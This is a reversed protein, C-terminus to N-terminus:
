YYREIEIYDFENPPDGLWFETDVSKGWGVRRNGDNHQGESSWLM